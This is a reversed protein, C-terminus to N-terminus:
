IKQSLDAFNEGFNKYRRREKCKPGIRVDTIKM